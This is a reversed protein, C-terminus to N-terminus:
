RVSRQIAISRADGSQMVRLLLVLVAVASILLPPIWSIIGGLHQDTMADIPFLRGCLTYSPYLGHPALTIVAGLLTQPTMVGFAMSARIAYSWRAPPQPRPDLVILWFLLGDLVMSANMVGYLRADLMARFHIPPILWFYFVGVFLMSAIVPRAIPETVAHIVPSRGLHRIWPPAGRAIMAVPASLGILFPGLDHVLIQQTRNLAFLHQAMYDFHTQLAGYMLLVGIGFAAQKWRSPRESTTALGRAYWYLSLAATLYEWWTFEFPGWFPMLAPRFRSIAYLALGILLIAGYSAATRVRSGEALTARQLAVQDTM